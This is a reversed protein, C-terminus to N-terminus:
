VSYITPLTLHTYSVPEQSATPRVETVFVNNNNSSDDDNDNNNNSSSTSSSRNATTSSSGTADNSESANLATKWDLDADSAPPYDSGARANATHQAVVDGFSDASLEAPTTPKSHGRGRHFPKTTKTGGSLDFSRRMPSQVPPPAPQLVPYWIDRFHPAYVDRSTNALPDQLQRAQAVTARFTEMFRQTAETSQKMLSKYPREKYDEGFVDAPLDARIRIKPPLKHKVRLTERASTINEQIYNRRPPSKRGPNEGNADTSAGDKDGGSGVEQSPHLRALFQARPENSDSRGKRAWSGLAVRNNARLKLLHPPVLTGNDYIPYGLKDRLVRGGGMASLSSSLLSAVTSVRPSM